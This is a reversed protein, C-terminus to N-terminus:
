RLHGVMAVLVDDYRYNPVLRYMHKTSSIVLRKSSSSADRAADAPAPAGLGVFYIRGGKVWVGVKHMREERPTKPLLAILAANKPHGAKSFGQVLIGACLEDIAHM